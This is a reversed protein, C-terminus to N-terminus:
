KICFLKLVSFVCVYWGLTWKGPFAPNALEGRGLPESAFTELPHISESNGLWCLLLVSLMTCMNDM